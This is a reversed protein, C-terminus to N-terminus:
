TNLLIRRSKRFEQAYGTIIKRNFSSENKVRGLMKLESMRLIIQETPKDEGGNFVIGLIKIGRSRLAEVTLLTHNISGLYHRSVLLVTLNRKDAWEAYLDKQNLPVLVGGAGEVIQHNTTKPLKLQKM